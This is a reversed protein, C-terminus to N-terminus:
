VKAEYTYGQENLFDLLTSLDKPEIVLKIIVRQRHIVYLNKYHWNKENGDKFGISSGKYLPRKYFAEYILQLTNIPVRKRHSNILYGSSARFLKTNTYLNIITGDEYIEYSPFNPHRRHKM